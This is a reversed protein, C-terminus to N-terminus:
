AAQMPLYDHRSLLVEGLDTLLQNLRDLPVARPATIEVGIAKGDKAYDVILLGDSSAVTKASKEGTEHSM